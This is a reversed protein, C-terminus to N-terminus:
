FRTPELHAAEAIDASKKGSMSTTSPRRRKSRSSDPRRRRATVSLCYGGATELTGSWVLGVAAASLTNPFRRRASSLQVMGRSFASAAHNM